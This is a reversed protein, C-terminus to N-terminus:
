ALDDLLKRDERSYEQESLRPGLSLLGVLEGHTVLPVVLQMGADRLERVAPSDLELGDLDVAGSSSALYALLPDNPAIDVAPGTPAPAAAPTPMTVTAQRDRRWVKRFSLASTM